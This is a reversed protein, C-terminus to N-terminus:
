LVFQFTTPNLKLPLNEWYFEIIGDAIQEDSVYKFKFKKLQFDYKVDQGNSLQSFVGYKKNGFNKADKDAKITNNPKSEVLQEQISELDNTNIVILGTIKKNNTSSQICISGFYDSGLFIEEKLQKCIDNLSKKKSIEETGVLEIYHFNGLGHIEKYFTYAKFLVPQSKSLKAMLQFGNKLEVQIAEQMFVSLEPDPPNTETTSTQQMESAKKEEVSEVPYHEEMIQQNTHNSFDKNTIVSPM